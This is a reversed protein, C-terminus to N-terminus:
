MYVKKGEKDFVNLTKYKPNAEVFAREFEGNKKFDLQVAQRNGKELSKVLREKAAQDSGEQINFKQIADNIKFGYGKSYTEALPKGQNDRVSYDFKVWADYKEGQKNYIEPRYVARGNLLNYSEKATITKGKDNYVRMGEST